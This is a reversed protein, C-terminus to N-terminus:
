EESIKKYERACNAAFGDFAGYGGCYFEVTEGKLMCKLFNVFKSKFKDGGM